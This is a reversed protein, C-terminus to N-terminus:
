SMLHNYIESEHEICFFTNGILSRCAWVLARATGAAEGAQGFFIGHKDPQAPYEYNKWM